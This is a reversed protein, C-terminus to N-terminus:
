PQVAGYVAGADGDRLLDDAPLARVRQVSELLDHPDVQDPGEVDDPERGLRHGAVLRGVGALAADDHVRGGDGREFALYPLGGVGGGLAADDGHREGYGALQGAASDADHSRFLTTYPFLTSRPPRRIM